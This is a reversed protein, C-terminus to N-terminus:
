RAPNKYKPQNNNYGKPENCGSKLDGNINLMDESASMNGSFRDYSNYTNM